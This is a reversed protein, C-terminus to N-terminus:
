NMIPNNVPLRGKIKRTIKSTDCREVNLNLASPLQTTTMCEQRIWQIM